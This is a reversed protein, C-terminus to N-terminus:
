IDLVIGLHAICFYQEILFSSRMPENPEVLDNVLGGFRVVTSHSLRRKYVAQTCKACLVGDAPFDRGFSALFREQVTAPPKKQGRAFSGCGACNM